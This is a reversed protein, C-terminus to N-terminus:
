YGATHNRQNISEILEVVRLAAEQVEALTWPLKVQKSDMLRNILSGVDNSYGQTESNVTDRLKQVLQKIKKIVDAAHDEVLKNNIYDVVAASFRASKFVTTFYKKNLTNSGKAKKSKSPFYFAELPINERLAIEGFYFSYFKDLAVRKVKFRSRNETKLYKVAKSLLYKYCEESRKSTSFSVISELKVCIQKFPASLESSTLCKMFKKYLLVNLIQMEPASPQAIHTSINIRTFLAYLLSTFGSSGTLATLPALEIISGSICEQTDVDEIKHVTRQCLIPGVTQMELIRAQKSCNGSCCTFGSVAQLSTLSISQQNFSRVHGSGHPMSSLGLSNQDGCEDVRRRATQWDSHDFRAKLTHPTLPAALPTHANLEESRIQPKPITLHKIGGNM